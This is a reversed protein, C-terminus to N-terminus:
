DRATQQHDPATEDAFEEQEVIAQRSGLPSPVCFLQDLDGVFTVLSNLHQQCYEIGLYSNYETSM